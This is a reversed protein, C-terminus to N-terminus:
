GHKKVAKGSLEDADCIVKYPIAEADLRGLPALWEDRERGELGRPVVAILLPDRRRMKAEVVVEIMRASLNATCVIVNNQGYTSHIQNRILDIADKEYRPDNSFRPMEGIVQPLDTQRWTTRRVPNGVRDVYHVETDMGRWQAYRAISFGSEVVADFMRMLSLASQGPGYFDLMVAVGPNTYVEFLKTMLGESRASLKWHVNKMPDGYAYERVAAYDMSDSLVSRAAKTTEVASKNSFDINSVPVLRPVVQIRQRKPGEISCSFLRLFDYIVVRDLGATYIGIHEFRTTFPMDYKEFPALSITTARHSVPRGYLDATFFHAEMRFFFLPCRNSFRVKFRVDENRECDKINSKELLKISRKLIQLYLFALVIATVVGIFPIWGVAAPRYEDTGVVLALALTLLLVAAVAVVRLAVGRRAARREDRSMAFRPKKGARKGPGRKDAAAKKASKGGKGSARGSGSGSGGRPARSGAAAGTGAAAGATRGASAKSKNEDNRAM